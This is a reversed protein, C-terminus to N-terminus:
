RHVRVIHLRSKKVFRFKDKKDAFYTEVAKRCGEWKYYDDIILVGGETLNPVIRQLCIMVSKYWDCDIHALAVPENLFLTNEFLGKVFYVNNQDPPLHFDSFTKKVKALLDEEYGYYKNGGIGRSKGSAIIKYREHADKGNEESPPPPMGFVDYVYFKRTKKKKSAAIVLASGGLACGAEIIIGERKSRELENVSKYLDILAPVDLYTLKDKFVKEIVYYVKRNLLFIIVLSLLTSVNIGLLFNKYVKLSTVFKNLQNKSLHLLDTISV